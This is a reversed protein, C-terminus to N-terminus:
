PVPEWWWALGCLGPGTHAVMITTFSTVFATAPEVEACVRDLLRRADGEALAHLAAVHLRHGDVRTRRWHHLVREISADRGFAPRLPSVKGGPRLEIVPRVRLANTAAGAISPVRGGKVLWDLTDLTAVLRVRAMAARAAAEVADVDLGASAARAAHLVILGQAGAASGTSVVRVPGGWERAALAAAGATSSLSEAVTLVLVDDGEPLAEYAALFDGPTPGATTVGEDFRDVVEEVTVENELVERGGISLRMPVVVIGHEAFVDHPLDAASDTVVRVTM